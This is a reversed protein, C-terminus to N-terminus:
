RLLHYQESCVGTSCMDHAPVKATVHALAYLIVPKLGVISLLEKYTTVISTKETVRETEKKFMWVLTTTVLFVCGWFFMFDSLTILGTDAPESRLYRNCFDKSELALFVTFGLFYGATQGVSNCTSAYGINVKSLMTLAWGDVAIDQTAAFLYMLFFVMTLLQVDPIEGHMGLLADVWCSLLLMTVGILYQMPVMWTKRRGIRSSYLSDVIPAYLLKLTFPWSVVSFLAQQKYGVHRSQLLMPISGALGMPIGQLIYLFLLLLINWTDLRWNPKGERQSGDQRECHEDRDMGGSISVAYVTDISAPKRLSMNKRGSSFAHNRTEGNTYHSTPSTRM